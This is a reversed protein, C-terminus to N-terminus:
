LFLMACYRSIHSFVCLRIDQPQAHSLAMRVPDLIDSPGSVPFTINVQTVYAVIARRSQWSSSCYAITILCRRVLLSQLGVVSQLYRITHPIVPYATSLFLVRGKQLRTPALSRIVANIAGSANEIFVVDAPDANIYRPM